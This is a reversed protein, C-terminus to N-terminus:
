PTSGGSKRAQRGQVAAAIRAVDALSVVGLKRCIHEKRDAHNDVAAVMRVAGAASYASRLAAHLRNWDPPRKKLKLM